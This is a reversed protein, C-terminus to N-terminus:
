FFGLYKSVMVLFVYSEHVPKVQKELGQKKYIALVQLQSINSIFQM